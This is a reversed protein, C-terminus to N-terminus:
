DDEIYLKKVTQEGNISAIVIGKNTPEIATDVVRIDGEEIGARIMSGGCAKVVYTHTPHAIMHKPLDLHEEVVPM